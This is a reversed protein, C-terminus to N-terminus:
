PKCLGCVTGEGGVAGAQEAAYEWAEARTPFGKWWCNASQHGHMGLGGKCAGCPARHLKVTHVVKNVFVFYDTRLPM